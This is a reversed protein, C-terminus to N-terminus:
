LYANVARIVTTGIDGRIYINEVGSTGTRINLYYPTKSAINVNKEKHAPAGGMNNTVLHAGSTFETDSESNNGTSLTSYIVINSSATTENAQFIMEYYLRWCGIPVSISLTGTNYWTNQTPTAQTQLSSNATEVTWKDPDLPFGLPAKMTSYYFASIASNAVDYDTGGYLTVVTNTSFAIATIIGYFTTSNNTFKVKMGVGM